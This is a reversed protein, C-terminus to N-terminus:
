RILKQRYKKKTINETTIIKMTDHLLLKDSTMSAMSVGADTRGSEFSDEEENKKRDM